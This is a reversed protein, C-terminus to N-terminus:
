SAWGFNEVNSPIQVDEWELDKLCHPCITIPVRSIDAFGVILNNRFAVNIIEGCRHMYEVLIAGKYEVERVVVRAM